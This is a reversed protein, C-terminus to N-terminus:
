KMPTFINTPGRPPWLGQVIPGLEVKIFYAVIGWAISTKWNLQFSLLVSLMFNLMFGYFGVLFIFQIIYKITPKKDKVLKEYLKQGADIANKFSKILEKVANKKAM